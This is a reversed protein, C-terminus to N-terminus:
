TEEPARRDIHALLAALNQNLVSATAGSLGLKGSQLSEFASMAGIVLSRLDPVVPDPGANQGRAFETVAGAFADDLCKNLTRFDVASIAAHTEVALDTISQCVDGYDHVVQGITFGGVRLAHGHELASQSIDSTNSPVRSLEARLQDLFLPVGRHSDAATLAPASRKKVKARCRGILEDRHTGIFDALATNSM